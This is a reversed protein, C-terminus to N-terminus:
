SRSSIVPLVARFDTGTPTASRTWQLTLDDFLQSGLGRHAELAIPTGTNEVGIAITQNPAIARISIEIATAHGHRLANQCAERVIEAVAYATDPHKRIEALDDPSMTLSIDVADSWLERLNEIIQAPDSQKTSPTELLSMADEIRSRLQEAFEATEAREPHQDLGVLMSNIAEQVPGHLIRSISKHLQRLSTNLTALERRLDKLTASLRTQTERLLQFVKVVLTAAGVGLTVISWWAPFQIPGLLSFGTIARVSLAGVFAVGSTVAVFIIVRLSLPVAVPLFKWLMGALGFIVGSILMLSLAALLGLAGFNLTLFAMGIAGLIIPQVRWHFPSSRFAESYVDGWVVRTEGQPLEIGTAPKSKKVLSYSLPRVVDDILDKVVSANTAEQQGFRSFQAEIQSRITQVLEQRRQAIRREVDGRLEVLREASAQLQANAKSQEDASTVLLAVLISGTMVGPVATALRRFFMLDETFGFFVLLYDFTATAVALALILTLITLEPRSSNKALRTLAFRGLALVLGLPVFALLRVAIFEALRGDFIVLSSVLSGPTQLVVIYAFSFWSIARPTGLRSLWHSM